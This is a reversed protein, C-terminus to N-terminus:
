AFWSKVTDFIEFVFFKVEVENEVEVAEHNEEHEIADGNSFDLFCLPPFLVCWWNEGNGSGLTILVADYEGAPYVLHGYLKTPFQVRNFEVNFSQKIGNNALKKAVIAEIEELNAEIVDKAEDMSDIHLVWDTITANVEDRIDRKLMQDKISDSNALIRLRIADEQSVEDHFSAAAMYNQSEWNMVLIFVFFLLYFLVKFNM